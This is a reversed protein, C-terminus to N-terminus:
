FVSTIIKREYSLFTISAGTRHCNKDKLRSALTEVAEKSLNLYRILDNLEEQKFQEPISLSSKFVSGGSDSASSKIEKQFKDCEM